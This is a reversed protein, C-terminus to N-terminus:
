NQEDSSSTCLSDLSTQRFSPFSEHLKSKFQDKVKKEGKRIVEMCFKSVPKRAGTPHKIPFELPVGGVSMQFFRNALCFWMGKLVDPLSSQEKHKTTQHYNFAKPGSYAGRVSGLMDLNAM